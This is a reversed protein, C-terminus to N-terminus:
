SNGSIFERASAPDVFSSKRDNDNGPLAATNVFKLFNPLFEFGKMRQKLRENLQFYQPILYQNKIKLESERLITM